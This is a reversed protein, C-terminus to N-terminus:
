YCIVFGASTAYSMLLMGEPLSSKSLWFFLDCKQSILKDVGLVLMKGLANPPGREGCFWFETWLGVM